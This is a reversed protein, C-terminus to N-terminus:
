SVVRKDLYFRKVVYEKLAPAAEQLRCWHAVKETLGERSSSEKTELLLFFFTLGLFLWVCFTYTVRSVPQSTEMAFSIGRLCLTSCLKCLWDEKTHTFSPECHTQTRYSVLGCANRQTSCTYVLFYLFFSRSNRSWVCSHLVVYQQNWKREFMAHETRSVM